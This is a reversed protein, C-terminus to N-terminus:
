KAGNPGVHLMQYHYKKIEHLIRLKIFHFICDVMKWIGERHFKTSFQTVPPLVNNSYMISLLFSSNGASSLKPWTRTRWQM